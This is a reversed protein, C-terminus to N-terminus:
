EAINAKRAMSTKIAKALSIDTIPNKNDNM